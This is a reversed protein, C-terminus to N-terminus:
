GRRARPSQESDEIMKEIADAVRLSSKGDLSHGFFRQLLSHRQAARARPNELAAVLMRVLDEETRAVEVAGSAVVPRYHDFEYYRAFDLPHISLGPPNYGINIVPKDFMCLELAITSAINMGAACHRLMNTLLYADELKPTLWAPEWPIAPILIDPRRRKLEDFRGTRDKPYVRVLLQPPGFERLQRIRDAIGEVIRPEGPMHNAMGTCYLVIPRTPDAGVVRCFEERTWHYEPRFHFDFQPTGTVFVREPTVGSYMELLQDRILENWVIYYDYEPMIRGQSTLNDWSFIFAATRLGLRKAAHIAPAAITSHVHSTNLVLAPRLRALVDTYKTTAAFRQGAAAEMRSLLELATSNALPYCIAKKASRKLSRSLGTAEFDRLRWREQAAESWLWRGHAVDLLDRLIRVTWPEDLSELDCVEGYRNRLLDRLEENPVVSFVRVSRKKALEDLTGAYVFNRLSEGRPLIAVLDCQGAAGEAAIPVAAPGAAVLATASLDRM